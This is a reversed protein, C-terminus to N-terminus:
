INGGPHNANDCGMRDSNLEREKDAALASSFRGINKLHRVWKGRCSHGKQKPVCKSQKVAARVCVMLLLLLLGYILLPPSLRSLRSCLAGRGSSLLRQQRARSSLWQFSFLCRLINFRRIFKIELWLDEGTRRCLFVTMNDHGKRVTCWKSNNKQESDKM